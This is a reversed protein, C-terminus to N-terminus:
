TVSWRRLGFDFQRTEALESRGTTNSIQRGSVTRWRKRLAIGGKIIDKTGKAGSKKSPVSQESM